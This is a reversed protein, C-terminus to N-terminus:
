ISRRVGISKTLESRSPLRTDDELDFLASLNGLLNQAAEERYSDGKRHYEGARRDIDGIIWYLNSSLKRDVFLLETVTSMVQRTFFTAILIWWSTLIALIIVILCILDAVHRTLRTIRPLLITSMQGPTMPEKSVSVIIDAVYLAATHIPEVKGRIYGGLLALIMGLSLSIWTSLGVLHM